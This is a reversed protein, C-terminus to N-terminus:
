VTSGLLTAGAPRQSQETLITSARGSSRIRQRRKAIDKRKVEEGVETPTPAPPPPPPPPPPPKPSGGKFRITPRDPDTQFEYGNYIIKKIM